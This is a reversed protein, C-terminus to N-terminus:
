RSKSNPQIDWADSASLSWPRPMSSQLLQACVRAALQFCVRTATFRPFEPDLDLVTLLAILSTSFFKSSNQGLDCDIMILWLEYDYSMILWLEYDIMVWLWDYDDHIMIM